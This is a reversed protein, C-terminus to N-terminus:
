CFVKLSVPMAIVIKFVESVTKKKSLPLVGSYERSRQRMVYHARFCALYSTRVLIIRLLSVPSGIIPDGANEKKM